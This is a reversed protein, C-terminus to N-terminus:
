RCEQEWLRRERADTPPAEQCPNARPRSDRARDADGDLPGARHARPPHIGPYRAQVASSLSACALVCAVSGGALAPVSGLRLRRLVWEAVGGAAAGTVAGAVLGIVAFGAFFGSALIAALGNASFDIGFYGGAGLWAGWVGGLLPWLARVPWVGRM